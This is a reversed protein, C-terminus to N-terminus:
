AKVLKYKQGDIEIIKGECSSKPETQRKFEEETLRKNDIWWEKTGDPYVIAPGDLRHPVGNLWWAKYGDGGEVAPGDTRHTKGNLHWEKHGEETYELAPGDIRHLQGQENRWEVCAYNPYVRVEYKIYDV